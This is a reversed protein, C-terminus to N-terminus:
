IQGECQGDLDGLFQTCMKNKTLVIPHKWM